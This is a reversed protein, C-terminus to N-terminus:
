RGTTTSGLLLGGAPGCGPDVVVVHLVGRRGSALVLLVGPRGRLEVRDAGLLAAGPEVGPVRVARLCAARRGPDALLGADGAGLAARGASALDLGPDPPAPRLWLVGALALAGLVAAALAVPRLRRRSVPVPGGDRGAPRVGGGVRGILPGPGAEAALAAAWRATYEAPLPPVPLAALGARVAAVAEPGTRGIPVTRDPRGPGPTPTSV